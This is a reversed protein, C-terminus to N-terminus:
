RTHVSPKRRKLGEPVKLGKPKERRLGSAFSKAARAGMGAARTVVGFGTVRAVRKITNKM